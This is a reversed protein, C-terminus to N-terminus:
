HSFIWIIIIIIFPRGINQKQNKFGDELLELSAATAAIVSVVVASVSKVAPVPDLLRIEVHIDIIGLIFVYCRQLELCVFNCM